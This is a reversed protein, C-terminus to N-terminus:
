LDLIWFWSFNVVTWEIRLEFGPFNLITWLIWLEEKNFWRGTTQLSFLLAWGARSPLVFFNTRRGSSFNHYEVQNLTRHTLVLHSCGSPELKSHQEARRNHGTRTQGARGRRPTVGRRRGNQACVLRAGDVRRYVNFRDNVNVHRKLNDAEDYTDGCSMM